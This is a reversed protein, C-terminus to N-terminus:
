DEKTNQSNESKGFLNVLGDIVREVDQSQGKYYFAPWSDAKIECGVTTALNIGLLLRFLPENQGELRIELDFEYPYDVNQGRYSIVSSPHAPKEEFWSRLLERTVEQLDGNFDELPEILRPSAEAHLISKNEPFTSKVFDKIDEITVTRGRGYVTIEAIRAKPEANIRVRYGTSSSHEISTTILPIRGPQLNIGISNIPQSFLVDNLRMLREPFQPSFGAQQLFPTQTFSELSSQESRVVLSRDEPQAGGSERRGTTM